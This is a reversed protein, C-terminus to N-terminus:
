GKDTFGPSFIWFAPGDGLANPSFFIWLAANCWKTNYTGMNHFKKGSLASPSPGLFHCINKNLVAYKQVYQCIGNWILIMLFGLQCQIQVYLKWKRLGLQLTVLSSEPNKKLFCARHHDWYNVSLPECYRRKQRLIPILNKVIKTLM